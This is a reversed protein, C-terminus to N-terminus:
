RRTPFLFDRIVHVDFLLSVEDSFTPVEHPLAVSVPVHIDAEFHVDDHALRDIESANEFILDMHFTVIETLQFISDAGQSLLFGATAQAKDLAFCDHRGVQPHFTFEEAARISVEVLRAAGLFDGQNELVPDLM